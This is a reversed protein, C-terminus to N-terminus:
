DFRSRDETDNQEWFSNSDLYSLFLSNPYSIYLNCIWRKWFNEGSYEIDSKKEYKLCSFTEYAIYSKKFTKLCVTVKIKFSFLKCM